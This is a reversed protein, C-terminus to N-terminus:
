ILFGNTCKKSNQIIISSKEKELIFEFCYVFFLINSNFKLRLLRMIAYNGCVFYTGRM